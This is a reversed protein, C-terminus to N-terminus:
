ISIASVDQFILRRAIFSGEPNHVRVISAGRSFAVASAIDTVEDSQQRNRESVLSLCRKRSHAILVPFGLPKLREPGEAILRLDNHLGKGFGIGPDVVILRPDIGTKLAFELRKQLQVVIKKMCIDFPEEPSDHDNWAMLVIHVGADRVARYIRGERQDSPAESQGIDNIWDAYGHRLAWEITQPHYSDLSIPSNLHTRAWAMPVTLREIEADSSLPTAGPRTSEAGIDIIDAGKKCLSLAHERSAAGDKEWHSSFSDPSINWIGMIAPYRIEKM